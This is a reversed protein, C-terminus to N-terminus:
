VLRRAMIAGADLGLFGSMAFLSVLMEGWQDELEEIGAATGSDARARGLARQGGDRLSAIARDMALADNNDAAALLHAQCIAQLDGGAAHIDDQQTRM